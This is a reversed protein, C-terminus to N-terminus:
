ATNTHSHSEYVALTDSNAAFNSTIVGGNVTMQNYVGSAVTGRVDLKATPTAMGVGIRENTEDLYLMTNGDSSEFEVPVTSTMTYTSKTADTSNTSVDALTVPDGGGGDIPTGDANLVVIGNKTPDDVSQVISALLSNGMGDILSIRNKEKEAM